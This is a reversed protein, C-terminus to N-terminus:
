SSRTTLGSAVDFVFWWSEPPPRYCEKSAWKYPFKRLGTEADGLRLSYASVATGGASLEVEASFPDLFTGQKDYWVVLGTVVLSGSETIDFPGPLVGDVVADDGWDSTGCLHDELLYQLASCLRIRCQEEATMEGSVVAARYAMLDKPLLDLCRAQLATSM